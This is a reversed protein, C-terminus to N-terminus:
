KEEKELMERLRKLEAAEMGGDELINLVLAEHSDRFFRGVLHRIESRTAERRGILPEYIHARGDKVHHLYGKKELIRVTTLVSNYALAPKEPLWDLVQQVTAAGKLWLVDMIRLEAETLTPSQKPPM